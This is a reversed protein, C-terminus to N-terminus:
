LFRCTVFSFFNVKSTEHPESPLDILLLYVRLWRRFKMAPSTMSAATNEITKSQSLHFRDFFILFGLFRWKQRVIWALCSHIQPLLSSLHLFHSPLDLTESFKWYLPFLSLLSSPSLFLVVHPQSPLVRHSSSTLSFRSHWTFLAHPISSRQMMHAACSKVKFLPNCSFAVSFVIWILSLDELSLTFVNLEGNIHSFSSTWAETVEPNLNAYLYYDWLAM